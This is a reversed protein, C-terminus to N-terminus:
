RRARRRRALLSLAALAPWAAAPEPASIVSNVIEPSPDGLLFIGPLGVTEFGLSPNGALLSDEIVLQGTGDNSVFFIAGGGENARNDTIRTGCVDLTM